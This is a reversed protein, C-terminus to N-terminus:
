RRRQEVIDDQMLLMMVEAEVFLRDFRRVRRGGTTTERPTGWGNRLAEERLKIDADDAVALQQDTLGSAVKNPDWDVDKDKLYQDWSEDTIDYFKGDDALISWEGNDQLAFVGAHADAARDAHETDWDIADETMGQDGGEGYHYRESGCLIDVGVTYFVGPQTEKTDLCLKTGDPLIFTSDNGFHWNDGGKGENVHPDGWIRTTQDGTKDYIIVESDKMEITYGDPTIVVASDSHKLFPARWKPEMLFGERGQGGGGGQTPPQYSHYEEEISQYIDHHVFMEQGWLVLDTNYAHCVKWAEEDMHVNYWGMTVNLEEDILRGAVAEYQPVESVNMERDVGPIYNPDGRPFIREAQPMYQLPNVVQGTAADVEVEQMAIWAHHETERSRSRGGGGGGGGARSRGKLDADGAVARQADTLGSAKAGQDIDRDSQYAAWSENTIDYFDGDNGQVAWQNNDQLAFIGASADTSRDANALDWDLADETMGTEGGEGHHFRDSGSVVDVGVVYWEDNSNPETDCCIKTGDPLIFTSDEGFHWQASGSGNENVHPDGWIKTIECGQQDYIIVTPADMEITYNGDTMVIDSGSLQAFPPRWDTQILGGARGGGGGGGGNGYLTGAISEEVRRHIFVHTGIIAADCNYSNAVRWAERDIHVQYNEGISTGLETDLADKVLNQNEFSESAAIDSQLGSWDQIAGTDNIEIADPVKGDDALVSGAVAGAQSDFASAEGESEELRTGIDAWLAGEATVGGQLTTGEARSFEQLVDVLAEDAMTMNELLAMDGSRAQEIAQLLTANGGGGGAGGGGTALGTRQPGNFALHQPLLAKM